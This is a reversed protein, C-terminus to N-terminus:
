RAVNIAGRAFDLSPFTAGHPPQFVTDTLACIWWQSRSCSWLSPYNGGKVAFCYTIVTYIIYYRYSLFVIHHSYFTHRQICYNHILLLNIKLKFTIHASYQTARIRTHWKINENLSPDHWAVFRRLKGQELESTTVLLSSATIQNPAYPRSVFKTLLEQLIAFISIHREAHLARRYSPLYQSIGNRM